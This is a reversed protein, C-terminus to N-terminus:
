SFAFGASAVGNVVFLAMSVYFFFGEVSHGLGEVNYRYL